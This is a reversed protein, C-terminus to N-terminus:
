RHSPRGNIRDILERLRAYSRRDFPVLLRELGLEDQDAVEAPTADTREIRGRTLLDAFDENISV